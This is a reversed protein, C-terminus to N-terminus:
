FSDKRGFVEDDNKLMEEYERESLPQPVDAKPLFSMILKNGAGSGSLENIVSMSLENVQMKLLFM